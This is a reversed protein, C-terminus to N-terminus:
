HGLRPGHRGLSIIELPPLGLGNTPLAIDELGELRPQEEGGILSAVFFGAVVLLSLGVLTFVFVRSRSREGFERSAIIRIQAWDSM